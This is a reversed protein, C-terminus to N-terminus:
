KNVRLPWKKSASPAFISRAIRSTVSTKSSFLLQFCRSFALFCAQPAQWAKSGIMNNTAFSPPTCRSEISSAIRWRTFHTSFESSILLFIAVDATFLRWLTWDAVHFCSETGPLPILPRQKAAQRAFTSDLVNGSGTFFCSCFIHPFTSFSILSSSINVQMLWLSM